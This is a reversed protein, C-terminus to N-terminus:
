DIIVYPPPVPDWIGTQSLWVIAYAVLLVVLIAGTLIMLPTRPAPRTFYVVFAAALLAVILGIAVLPVWRPEDAGCGPPAPYILICVQGVQQLPWLIAISVAALASAIILWPRPRTIPLEDTTM